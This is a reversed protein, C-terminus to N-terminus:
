LGLFYTFLPDYIACNKDITAPDILYAADSGNGGIDAVDNTGNGVKSWGPGAAPDKAFDAWATQMYKSLAIQQATANATLYTGFVEPIESSHFVGSDPGFPQFNPFSANFYYRWVNYGDKTALDAISQAPCQFGVQTLIDSITFYGSETAPYAALVEQQLSAPFTTDVYATVNSQGFAFVRGEGANTGILIPIHAATMGNLQHSIDNTSTINDAVPAFDLAQRSIIDEIVSGNVTRVCAIHSAASSCNVAAVLTNWNTLGNGTFTSAESEM